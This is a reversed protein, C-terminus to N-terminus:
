EDADVSLEKNVLEALVLNGNVLMAAGKREAESFSRYDADPVGKSLRKLEAMQSRTLEDLSSIEAIVRDFRRIAAEIEMRENDSEAAASKNKTATRVGVGVSVAGAAVAIAWGVPGALALLTGGAAM